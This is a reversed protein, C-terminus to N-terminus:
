TRSISRFFLLLVRSHRSGFDELTKDKTQVIRVSGLSVAEVYPDIWWNFIDEEFISAAVSASVRELLAHLVLPFAAPNTKDGDSYELRIKNVLWDKAELDVLRNDQCVKALILRSTLAHATELCFMFPDLDKKSAVFPKWAAPIENMDIQRAYSQSWFEYAGRFFRNDKAPAHEWYRFLDLMARLLEGFRGTPSLSLLRFFDERVVADKIALSEVAGLIRHIESITSYRYTRKAIKDSILRAEHETVNKLSPVHLLSSLTDGVREFLFLEEGNTLIAFNAKLPLVYRTKLQGDRYHLLPKKDTPKKFEIVFTVSFADRCYYDPAHGTGPITEHSFIDVGFKQYGLAQFFPASVFCDYVSGESMERNAAVRAAADLLAAKLKGADNM